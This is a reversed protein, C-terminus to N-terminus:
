ALAGHRKAGEAASGPTGSQELAESIRDTGSQKAGPIALGSLEDRDESSSMHCIFLAQACGEELSRGVSRGVSRARSAQGWYPSYAWDVSM